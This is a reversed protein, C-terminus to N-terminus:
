RGQGSAASRNCGLICSDKKTMISCQEKMNLKTDVLVGLAKEAFSNELQTAWLMYQHIPNIRWLHLVKYKGKNSQM